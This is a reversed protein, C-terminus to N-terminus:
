SQSKRKTKKKKKAIIFSLLNTWLIYNMSKKLLNAVTFKNTIFSIQPLLDTKKRYTTNIVYNPLM